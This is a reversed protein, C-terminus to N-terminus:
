RLLVIRSKVSEPGQQLQAFYIGSPLPRGLGDRGDWVLEGRHSGKALSVSGVIRGGVDYIVIQAPGSDKLSYRLVGRTAFPNPSARLVLGPSVGAFSDVSASGPVEIEIINSPGSEGTEYSATLVYNYIGEPVSVDTYTQDAPGLVVLPDEPFPEGVLTRYLNYGQLPNGPGGSNPPSDWTLLVDNPPTLEATLGRPGPLITTEDLVMDVAAAVDIVGWGYTNDEGSEGQDRATEMLAQKVQHVALDPNVQRLIAVAGSVHPCAM